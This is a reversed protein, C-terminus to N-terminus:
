NIIVQRPFMSMATKFSLRYTGGIQAQHSIASSSSDTDSTIFNGQPDYLLIFPDYNNKGVEDLVFAMTDLADVQVTWIDMDALDISGSETVGSSIVGGEDGAPVSFAKAIQTFYLQYAGTGSVDVNGDQMVVTYTGGIVAQHSIDTSENISSNSTIFNGNPGYLLLFPDLSSTGVEGVAIRVSDLASAEFTWIDMDGLDITGAHVGGNSLAGGEDGAAVTFSQQIHTFYLQYDGTGSVDVNGDQMIVTYTGGIVAQHSIDTSENINNNSTIFNGDPGYLLLFPDLSSTGVEGVAIRVSDLVSAEFTWIDMDGLDITGAHIGGNSLAGGEDGAPVTFSQQIQTFYLQYDGSGSVDVNGDLMIVTYTGGILAQHSINTSENINNNSTIFNGDPGYLLLFPDLSSAGVEGVAIRVSDLASAEFTWIDMDSLAITGAHIGGNTLAGGEDGVPVTFAKQIQSFYLQYGGTGTADVNGDQMIVTYTGGVEAQHTIDTSGNINNNSTILSGDPGYLVLFPDLSPSGVEGVAIRVSDQADAEFTWLDMDGLDITGAHIGGNSLAGGEDGAPVVFSGPVRALYLAYSGTGDPTVSNDLVQVTYTGSLSAQHIISSSNNGSNTSILVSDPGILRLLPEFNTGSIEGIQIRLGDGSNASFTWSDVDGIPSVTATPSDGNSIAGQASAQTSFGFLILLTLLTTLAQRSFLAPNFNSM